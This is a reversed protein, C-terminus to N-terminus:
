RVVWITTRRHFGVVRIRDGVDLRELRYLAGPGAAASDVHGAIVAVGADGPAPAATKVRSAGRSVVGDWWGVTHM